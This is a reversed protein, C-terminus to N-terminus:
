TQTYCAWIVNREMLGKDRDCFSFFSLICNKGVISSFTMQRVTTFYDLKLTCTFFLMFCINLVMHFMGVTSFPWNILLLTKMCVYDCLPDCKNTCKITSFFFFPCFCHYNTKRWSILLISVHLYVVVSYLFLYLLYGGIM